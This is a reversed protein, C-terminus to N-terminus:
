DVLNELPTAEQGFPLLSALSGVGIEVLLCLPMAWLFSIGPTGTFEKWYNVAIVVAIGFTAGVMAGFGKAWPVFMALFFLGALPATFLNVVKFAILWSLIASGIIIWIYFNIVMAIFGILALM